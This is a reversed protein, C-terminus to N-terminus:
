LGKAAQSKLQRLYNNSGSAAIFSMEDEHFLYNQTTLVVNNKSHGRM